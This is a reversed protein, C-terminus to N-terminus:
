STLGRSLLGWPNRKEGPTCATVKWPGQTSAEPQKRSGTVSCVCEVSAVRVEPREEFAELVKQIGCPKRPLPEWKQLPTAWTTGHSTGEREPRQGETLGEGQWETPHEAGQEEAEKEESCEYQKSISIEQLRARHISRREKDEQQRSLARGVARM